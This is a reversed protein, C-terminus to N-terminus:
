APDEGDAGGDSYIVLQLTVVLLGGVILGVGEGFIRGFGLTILAFGLALLVIPLFNKPMSPSRKLM